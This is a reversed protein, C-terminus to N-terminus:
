ALRVKAGGRIIRTPSYQIWQYSYHTMTITGYNKTSALLVKTYVSYVFLGPSPNPTNKPPGNKFDVSDDSLDITLLGPKQLLKHFHVQIFCSLKTSPKTPM